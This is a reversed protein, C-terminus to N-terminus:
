VYLANQLERLMMGCYPYRREPDREICRMVVKELPAPLDPNLERLPVAGAPDLQAALIEAPSDGPFPKKNALIEYAAVGFAFIDARGDLPQRQLQEPAMYAPTGPNQAPRVPKDPLPLATDFDILRVAGNRTVLINEPKFDLHMFGSQHMHALGAGAQAM